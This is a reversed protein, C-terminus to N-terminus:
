PEISEIRGDRLRVRVDAIAAAEQSHTAMIVAAGWEDAARRLLRLVQDGSATSGITQWDSAALAVVGVLLVPALVVAVPILFGKKFASPVLGMLVGGCM